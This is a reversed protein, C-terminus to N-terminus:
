GEARTQMTRHRQQQWAHVDGIVQAVKFVIKGWALRFTAKMVVLPLVCAGERAPNRFDRLMKVLKRLVNLTRDALKAAQQHKRTLLVTDQAPVAASTVPLKECHPFVM